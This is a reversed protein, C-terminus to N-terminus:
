KGGAWTMFGIAQAQKEPTDVAIQKGKRKFQKDLYQILQFPRLVFLPTYYGQKFWQIEEQSLSSFQNNAFNPQRLKMLKSNMVSNPRLGIDIVQRQPAYLQKVKEFFAWGESSADHLVYIPLNDPIQSSFDTFISLGYKINLQNAIFFEAIEKTECFLIGRLNYNNSANQPNGMILNQPFKGYVGKWRYTVSDKFDAVSQPLCIHTNNRIITRVIVILWVFFVAIPILLIFIGILVNQGAVNPLFPISIILSIFTTIIALVILGLTNSGSKLKKQSVAFQLQESTYFLKGQYSLKEVVNSFYKDTIQLPHTKPEFAFEKKCNSCTNYSREKYKIDTKCHPCIM